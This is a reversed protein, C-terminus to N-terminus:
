SGFDELLLMLAEHGVVTIGKKLQRQDLLRLHSVSIETVFAPESLDSNEYVAIHPGLQRVIYVQQPGAGPDTSVEAHPTGESPASEASSPIELSISDTVPASQYLIISLVIIIGLCALCSLSLAIRKNMTTRRHAYAGDRAPAQRPM